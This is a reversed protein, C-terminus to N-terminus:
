WAKTANKAKNEIHTGWKNLWKEGESSLFFAGDVLGGVAAGLLSGFVGGLRGLNYGTALGLGAGITAMSKVVTKKMTFEYTAKTIQGNKYELSTIYIEGGADLFDLPTGYKGIFSHGKIPEYLWTDIDKISSLTERSMKVRQIVKGNKVKDGDGPGTNIRHQAHNFLAVIGGIKVGDWFNGGTLASGVGGSLMGLAVQEAGSYSSSGIAKGYGFSVASALFASAAASLFDGGQMFSLTGQVGAHILSKIAENGLSATATSFVDGIVTTFGSSLLGMVVSSYLGLITFKAGTILVTATYSVVAFLVAKVIPIALFQWFEGSPDNYMLPNNMVYGYKNYNQTNTPDQINEDANLFRRLLPDYLRGNMHIIGVEAFHEHSTYGREVLLPTTDIINKDTIVAGNGIQLHTFNGWADFHRQELKNGEEDSIALISGIYDKHLFKYSGNTENYNKLYIINSKYPDGGVFLTHKEKGTMNDKVVEFSGDESYYKTFKGEGDTSFNGGYTVRQRMSNLGYQFAVDGKEGNIFVPDNNENYIISQILDNNYNQTGAANLTMGTPQYIKASNEYKITGVQDNEIIRGKIDYINRNNSPKIGTVPNTWNILRNNDDYDFTETISLDGGTIRSSLENKVADFNYSVQLISPTGELQLRHRHDINTLFGNNDYSNIIRTRGLNAGLVQGKANTTQLVWLVRGSNKDKVASLQGNWASYVNEIHLKTLVGSSYLQKEYSIVRAKDDYTIGKQIFYKGNSNESSSLVRGQPDYLINSSYAKGKSIGSKAIM